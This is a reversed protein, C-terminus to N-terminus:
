DIQDLEYRIYHSVKDGKRLIPLIYKDGYNIANPFFQCELALGGYGEYPVGDKGTDTNLNSATYLHMDPLDSYVSLKLKDNRLEAMLKEGMTEFVYNNDINDIQSLKDSILKWQTFDYPTGKVDKVEDLTLGFEDTPAYRDTYICLYEDKITEDGLNFYSHNSMNFITDADSEGSYEWLLTNKELRYRIYAKLNGPFGEEGDKSYYSFLVEDDSNSLTEWKKFAFGNKGGGHLQSGYNNESLQYKVGNLTFSANGIRNVNRGISAGINFENRLYDEDSNYGLVIDQSTKKDIFRVLTAGLESVEVKLYENELIHRQYVTQQDNDPEAPAPHVGPTENDSGSCGVLCIFLLFVAIIKRM